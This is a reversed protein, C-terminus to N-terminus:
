ESIGAREKGVVKCYCEKSPRIACAQLGLGQSASAPPVSLELSTQTPIICLRFYIYVIFKNNKKFFITELKGEFSALNVGFM